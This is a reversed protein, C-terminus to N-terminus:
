GHAADHSRNENVRTAPLKGGAQLAAHTGRNGHRMTAGINM